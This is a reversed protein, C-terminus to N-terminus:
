FEFHSPLCFGLKLPHSPFSVGKARFHRSLFTAPSCWSQNVSIYFCLGPSWISITSILDSLLACGLLWQHPWHPPKKPSLNRRHRSPATCWLQLSGNPFRLRLAIHAAPSATPNPQTLHHPAHTQRQAILAGQLWPCKPHVESQKHKQNKYHFHSGEHLGSGNQMDFRFYIHETHTNTDWSLSLLKPCIFGHAM